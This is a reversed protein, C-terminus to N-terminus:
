IKRWYMKKSINAKKFYKSEQYKHHRTPPSYFDPSIPFRDLAAGDRHECEKRNSEICDRHAHHHHQHHPHSHPYHHPHHHQATEISLNEGIVRLAITILMMVIIM